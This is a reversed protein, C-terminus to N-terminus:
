FEELLFFCGLFEFSFLFFLFEKSCLSNLLGLLGCCLFCSGFSIQRSQLSLMLQLSPLCFGLELHEFYFLLHFGFLEYFL